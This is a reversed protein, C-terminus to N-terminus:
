PRSARPAPRTTAVGPPRRTAHVNLDFAAGQLDVRLEGLTPGLRAAALEVRQGDAVVGQCSADGLQDGGVRALRGEEVARGQALIAATEAARALPSAILRASGWPEPLALGALEARSEDTLPIDTQGQFRRDQNWSTPFHRMVAIRTM